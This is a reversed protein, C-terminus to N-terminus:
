QSMRQLLSCIRCMIFLIKQMCATVTYLIVTSSLRQTQFKVFRLDRLIFLHSIGRGMYSIAGSKSVEIGPLRKIGDELTVDGKGLFSALSYRLTDGQHMLPSSKIRVEPLPQTNPTLVADARKNRGDGKLVQEQTDYGIHSFVVRTEDTRVSDSVEMAYEGNKNTFSYCYTRVGNVLKVIVNEVPAGKTDSVKGTLRVQAKAVGHM